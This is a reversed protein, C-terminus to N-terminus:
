HLIGLKKLLKKADVNKSKEVEEECIELILLQHLTLAMELKKPDLTEFWSVLEEHTDKEWMADLMNCQETTLGDIKM